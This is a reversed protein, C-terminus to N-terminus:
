RGTAKSIIWVAIFVPLLPLLVIAMGIFVLWGIADMQQNSTSGTLPTVSRIFGEDDADTTAM